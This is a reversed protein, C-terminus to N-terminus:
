KRVEDIILQGNSDYRPAIGGKNSFPPEWLWYHVGDPSVWEFFHDEDANDLVSCACLCIALAMVLIAVLIKKM